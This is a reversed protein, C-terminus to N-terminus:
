EIQPIGANVIIDHYKKIEDSIFKASQDPSLYMTEAGQRQFGARVQPDAVAAKLAGNLKTVIAPPTGKPALLAFWGSVLYQPLGAEKTTPTDPLVDLRNPGAVALAKAGKAQLPAAVNPYWQFGLPVQGSMLDPAYQGINRYPVHTLKVGTLQSFYEGALHQSSGIGVSGFNLQGPRAKAYAILEQLTNVPLKSSAVVVITFSAFPSITEFDKEPDYDLHKYLTVNAAVPGSGGGLITYGDPAARAVDATGINGGAGPRNEVVIPQGLLKSMRDFLIRSVVDSASGGAFPIVATIPRNPYNQAADQAHAASGVIILALAFCASLLFKIGYKKM